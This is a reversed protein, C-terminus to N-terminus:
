HEVNDEERELNFFFLQFLRSNYISDGFYASASHIKRADWIVLRNYKNSVEDTKEWQTGDTYNADKDEYKGFMRNNVEDWPMGIYKLCEENSQPLWDLGSEKHKWFSTGAESPADPTLFIAGAYQQSDAHYVIPTGAPCWQFCGNTGYDWGGEETGEVIKGNMIKEICQKTNDFIKRGSESRYGVAGHNDPDEFTCEGIAWNRVEDPDNFFHDVVVISPTRVTAARIQTTHLKERGDESFTLKYFEDNM